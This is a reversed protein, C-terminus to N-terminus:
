VIYADAAALVLQYCLVSIQGVCPIARSSHVNTRHHLVDTTRATISSAQRRHSYCFNTALLAIPDSPLM